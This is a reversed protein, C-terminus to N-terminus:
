SHPSQPPAKELRSILERIAPTSLDLPELSVFRKYHWIATPWDKQKEALVGLGRVARADMFDFRLAQNYSRQAEGDLELWTESEGKLSWLLSNAPECGLRRTVTELIQQVAQSAAQQYGLRALLKAKRFHLALSEPYRERASDILALAEELQELGVLATATTVLLDIHLEEPLPEIALGAQAAQLGPRWAQHRVLYQALGLHARADGPRLEVAQRHMAETKDEQGLAEWALAVLTLHRQANSECLGLCERFRGTRLLVEALKSEIATCLSPNKCNDKLVNQYHEVAESHRGLRLYLRGLDWILQPNPHLAMAAGLSQLADEFDGVQTQLNALTNWDRWEQPGNELHNKIRSILSAILDQWPGQLGSAAYAKLLDLRWPRVLRSAARAQTEQAQQFLKELLDVESADALGFKILTDVGIEIRDGCRLLSSQVEQGNLYTGNTSGLDEVTFEASEQWVIQAHIRSIGAENLVLHCDESRGILTPNARIRLIAGAQGGTLPQLYATLSNELPRPRRAVAQTKAPDQGAM